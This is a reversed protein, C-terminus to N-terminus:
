WISFIVTISVLLTNTKRLQEERAAQRGDAPQQQQQQPEAKNSTPPGAQRQQMSTMRFRLKNCIRAHAISVTLIPLAYQVLISSISYISRGKEIPWEEMCFDVSSIPSNAVPIEHHQLTRVFILPLALVIGIVWIGALALMAGTLQFSKKTPYVILQYRDLAIATISLTSVFISVAQLSGVIKCSVPSNGLPWTYSRIEMLQLHYYSLRAM